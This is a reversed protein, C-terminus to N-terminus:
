WGAASRPLLSVEWAQLLLLPDLYAEGRRAGLHLCTRVICHGGTGLTGLTDGPGVRQGRGIRDEVPQYTSLLGDPHRVSVIGTGAIRGSYSVVGHDVARVPSGAFGGLDIGRHGPLWRQAPPDFLKQVSPRGPLPWDWAPRDASRRLGAVDQAPRAPLEVPTTALQRRWSDAVEDAAGAPAPASSTLLVVAALATLAPALRRSGAHQHRKMFRM